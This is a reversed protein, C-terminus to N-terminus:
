PNEFLRSVSSAAIAEPCASQQEIKEIRIQNLQPIGIWRYVADGFRPSFQCIAFLLKTITATLNDQDVLVEAKNQAIARIVADAVDAPTCIGAWKPAPVQTDALMGQQGVYGPCVTSVEVGTGALEQRITDSWMLLGAKSASYISDFPHGKKAATSTINVIHGSGQHLMQPLLLRTLEMAALLNTSFVSQLDTISYDQFARYIEIAANNIVIDVTGVQQNIQQLLEPLKEVRSIDFSIPIATGGAAAIAACVQDLKSKSRAVCIITAQERALAAAIFSGIGRSAGTLLVTKDAITTM